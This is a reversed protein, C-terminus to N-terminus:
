TNARLIADIREFIDSTFDKATINTSLMKESIIRVATGEAVPEVFVRVVEGWSFATVTRYAVFMTGDRASNESILSLGVDDIASRAADIVTANDAVFIREHGADLPEKQIKDASTCGILMTTLSIGVVLAM